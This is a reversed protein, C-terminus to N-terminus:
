STCFASNKLRTTHIRKEVTLGLQDLRVKYLQAIDILKFVPASDENSNMDELFAVLEAFAIGHLCSDDGDIGNPAAQRARNYLSRLCHHHYKAEIAIMDGAALKALLATDEVELACRRVNTDINYTSAKHLGASGASTNCFFCTPETSQPHSHASRTHVTSASPQQGTTLEGRRQEDFAKKNFKLRCKKHANLTSEIGDGDDLRELNLDMPMHQLTQFRLLDEALSAYGSGVPQKTSRLPCQLSEDTVVQCLVCIDWNTSPPPKSTSPQTPGMLIHRKPMTAVFDGRCSLPNNLKTEKCQPIKGIVVNCESRVLQLKMLRQVRLFM